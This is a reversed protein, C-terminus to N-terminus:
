EESTDVEALGIDDIIGFLREIEADKSALTLKPAEITAAQQAIVPDKDNDKISAKQETLRLPLTTTFGIPAQQDSM